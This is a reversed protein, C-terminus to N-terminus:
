SMEARNAPLRVDKALGKQHLRDLVRCVAPYPFDFRCSIAAATACDRAKESRIIRLLMDEAFEQELKIADM